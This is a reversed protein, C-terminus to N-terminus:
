PLSSRPRAPPHPTGAAATNRAPATAVLLLRGDRVAVGRAQPAPGMAVASSALASSGEESLVLDEGEERLGGDEILAQVQAPELGIRLRGGVGADLTLWGSPAEGDADAAIDDDTAPDAVRLAPPLGGDAPTVPALGGIEDEFLGSGAMFEDDDVDMGTTVLRGVDVQAGPAFMVGAGNVLFVHGNSSLRGAIMSPKGGVVRNLAVSSRSPQVFTVSADAGIDFSRWELIARQTRQTVTLSREKRRLEAKGSVVRGQEPLADREQAPTDAAPLALGIALALAAIWATRPPRMTTDERPRDPHNM